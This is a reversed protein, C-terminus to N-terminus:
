FLKAIDNYAIFVALVMLLVLGVFHIMGEKEPPVPKRRIKEILLFVLRGGDLAPVPLFNFLGLNASLLAMFNVLNWFALSMGGMDMAQTQIDNVMVVIGIPGALEEPNAQLTILKGLGYLTVNLSYRVNYWATAVTEGVTARAVNDEPAPEEGFIAARIDWTIGMLYRDAEGDEGAVLVPVIEVTRKEGEHVFEVEFPEGRHGDMALVYDAYIYISHGNMRTIRDGAQIGAAEAPYGPMVDRVYPVRMPMASTYILFAVLALLLNMAVGAALIVARKWVPKRGFAREDPNEEDEGLMRCSGGIPFARLSYLTAGRKVKFLRPGMGISFEEVLVGCARAAVFHGIEHVLVVVGFVLIAIM